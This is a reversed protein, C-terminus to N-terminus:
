YPIESPDIEDEVDEFSIEPAGARMWCESQCFDANGEADPKGCTVDGNVCWEGAKAAPIREMGIPDESAKILAALAPWLPSYRAAANTLGLRRSVMAAGTHIDLTDILSDILAIAQEPTFEVRVRVSM